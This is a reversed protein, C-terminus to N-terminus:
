AKTVWIELLNGDPDRVNCVYGSGDRLDRTSQVTVGEERLRALLEDKPTQAASTVTYHPFDAQQAPTVDALAVRFTGMRIVTERPRRSDPPPEFREEVTGGLIRTYFDEAVKLDQVSLALTRFSEITLM